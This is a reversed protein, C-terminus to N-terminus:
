AKTAELLEFFIVWRNSSLCVPVVESPRWLYRSFCMSKRTSAAGTFNHGDGSTGTFKHGIGPVVDYSYTIDIRFDDLEANRYVLKGASEHRHTREMARVVLAQFEPALSLPVKNKRAERKLRDYTDLINKYYVQSKQYYRMPQASTGVLSKQKTYPNHLLDIDTVTAGPTAYIRRDFEYDVEMLAKPTLEIIALNPDIKRLAMLIGHPKVKEGIDPFPKYNNEDGYLNLAVYRGGWEIVSSKVATYTNRLMFEDSAIFGDEITAPDTIFAVNAEMGYAWAGGPRVNPSQAVITGEPIIAQEQLRDYNKTLTHRYGYSQHRIHYLPIDLCRYRHQTDRYIVTRLPNEVYSSGMSPPIKDVVKEILAEHRFKRNFVYKGYERESGSLNNRVTTGKTVMYQGMHGGFMVQRAASVTTAWIALGTSAGALEPPLENFVAM